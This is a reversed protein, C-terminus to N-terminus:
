IGCEHKATSFLVVLAKCRVHTVHRMAGPLTDETRPEASDRFLGDRVCASFLRLIVKRSRPMWRNGHWHRIAMTVAISQSLALDLNCSTV